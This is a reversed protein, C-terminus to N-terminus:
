QREFRKNTIKITSFPHACYPRNTATDMSYQVGRLIHTRHRAHAIQPGMRRIQPILYSAFGKTGKWTNCSKFAM